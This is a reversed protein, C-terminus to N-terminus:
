RILLLKRTQTFEETKMRYFYTGSPLQQGFDDIGDWQVSYYGPEQKGDKLVRVIRGLVDYLTINIHSAKPLQYKITTNPNFPNPYNQYFAFTKPIQTTRETVGVAGEVTVTIPRSYLTLETAITNIVRCLYSGADSSDVPSITYSNSEAGPIDAGDKM